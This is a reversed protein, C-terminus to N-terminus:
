THTFDARISDSHALLEVFRQVSMAVVKPTRIEKPSANAWSSLTATSVLVALFVLAKPLSISWRGVGYCIRMEM